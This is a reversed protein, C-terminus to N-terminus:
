DKHFAYPFEGKINEYFGELYVLGRLKKLKKVLEDVHEISEGNISTIIYEPAMNTKAVASGRYISVVKVGTISYKRMEAMTLDRVEIGIEKLVKDKRTAILETTNLMNKLVVIAEASKGGRIFKVMIPDGPRFGGLLEQLKPLSNTASGNVAVIVDGARLGAEDAASKPFVSSILVGQVRELGLEKALQDNINQINVGLIGRHAVGHEKLDHFVKQALNSPVAFSYGEYQGSYSIIATNIGVLEGATNVLAGGSNGPNVVADTQIFSEIGFELNNLININRGKASVIGATVTSQLRFPNGVALVWEGILLSDSNGFPLYPLGEAEIKLLALDTAPDTGIVEAIYERKDNLIVRIDKADEVVHNNTAIYGDASIFVGSGTSTQYRQGTWFNYDSTQQAQIYVVAPTSVQAATTFETPYASRLRSRYLSELQSEMQGSVPSLPGLKMPEVMEPGHLHRYVVVTTIASVACALILILWTKM